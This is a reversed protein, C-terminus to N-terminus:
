QCPTLAGCAASRATHQGRQRRWLNPVNLDRGEGDLTRLGPRVRAVPCEMGPPRSQRTIKGPIVVTPALGMARPGPSLAIFLVVKPRESVTRLAVVADVGRAHVVGLLVESRTGGTTIRM